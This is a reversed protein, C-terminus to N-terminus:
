AGDGDGPQLFPKCGLGDRPAAIVHDDRGVRTVNLEIHQSEDGVAGRHALLLRASM